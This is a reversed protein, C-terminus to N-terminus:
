IPNFPGKKKAPALDLSKVFLKKSAIKPQGILTLVMRNGGDTTGFTFFENLVMFENGYNVFTGGLDSSMYKPDIRIYDGPRITPDFPATVTLTSATKKVDSYYILEHVPYDSHEGVGAYMAKLAKGDPLICVGYARGLHLCIDSLTGSDQIPATLLLSDKILSHKEIITKSDSVQTCIHDIVTNLPTGVTENLKVTKAVWTDIFGTFFQFTTAGDPSPKDQYATLIQGTIPTMLTNKYGCTIEIWKFASGGGSKLLDTPTYFNTMQLTADYIINATFSGSVTISPKPGKRPTKIEITSTNYALSESTDRTLKVDVLRDYLAIKGM